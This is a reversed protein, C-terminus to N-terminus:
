AKKRTSSAAIWAPSSLVMRVLDVQRRTGTADMARKVHGRVTEFGIGLSQAASQLNGGEVLIRLVAAERKTLGFLRQLMEEPTDIPKRPDTVYLAVAEKPAGLMGASAAPLRRVVARMPEAHDIELRLGIAQDAGNRAEQIADRLDTDIERTTGRLRGNELRLADGEELLTRAARNAVKLEDADVVMMGLPVDDLVAKVTALEERCRHFTGYMSIARAVHPAFRGFDVCDEDRFAMGDPGRMLALHCMMQEDIPVTFMMSYEIGAPTLVEKYMDSAWLAEDSLFQRCHMAKYRAAMMGARPDRPTLAVFRPM